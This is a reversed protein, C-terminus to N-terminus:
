EQVRVDNRRLVNVPGGRLKSELSTPHRPLLERCPRNITLDTHGQVSDYRFRLLERNSSIRLHPPVLNESDHIPRSSMEM